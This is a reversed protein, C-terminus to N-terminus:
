LIYRLIKSLYKLPYIEPDQQYINITYIEPDQQSISIPYIKPYQQSINIPDVEPDKFEFKPFETM